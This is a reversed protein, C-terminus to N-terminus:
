EAVAALLEDVRAVVLPNELGMRFWAEARDRAQEDTTGLWKEAATTAFHGFQAQAMTFDGRSTVRGTGGGDVYAAYLTRAREPQAFCFETLLVALEHGPDAPGCLDWDIVCLSGSTTTRLNDAWLDRHCQQLGRPPEFFEQMRLQHRAFLEFDAAFPAGAAELAAGLEDWRGAPVPEVYWPDVPARAPLPDRHLTALLDGIAAPDLDTRPEELDVWTFARLLLGDVDALVRGDAARLPIPAPVGRRAMESQLAVESAVTDEDIANLLHKVAFRGRDTELLWIVGMQGRAAFRAPEVPRGLDYIDAAAEVRGRVGERDGAGPRQEIGM